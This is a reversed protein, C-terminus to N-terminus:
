NRNAQTVRGGNRPIFQEFATRLDDGSIVVKKESKIPGGGPGTHEQVVLDRQGLYQKGLWIQMPVSGGKIAKRFQARRLSSKGGASRKKFYEAFGMEKERKVAREITDPSCDFWQAIEELTCQWHCLRDFVKWDIDVRPRGNCKAM